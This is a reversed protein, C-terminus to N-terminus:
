GDMKISHENLIIYSVGRKTLVQNKMASYFGVPVLQLSRVFDLLFDAASNNGSLVAHLLQVDDEREM